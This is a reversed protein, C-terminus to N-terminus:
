RNLILRPEQQIEQSGQLSIITAYKTYPDTDYFKKLRREREGADRCTFPFVAPNCFGRSIEM